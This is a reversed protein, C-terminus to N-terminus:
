EHVVSTRAGEEVMRRMHEELPVRPNAAAHRRIAAADEVAAVSEVEPVYHKLLTEVRGHLTSASDPCGSCAGMMQLRVQVCSPHPLPCLFTASAVAHSAVPLTSRALVQGSAEDFGLLEIDGGDEQVFPRIKAQLLEDIFEEISDPAWATSGECGGQSMGGAASADRQAAWSLSLRHAAEPDRVAAGSDGQQLSECTAMVAEAVASEVRQWEAADAVNVSLSQASIMCSKVAPILLIKAALPAVPAIEFLSSAGHTFSLSRDAFALPILHVGEEDQELM